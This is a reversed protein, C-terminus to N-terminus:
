RSSVTGTTQAVPSIFIPKILWTAAVTVALSILFVVLGWWDNTDRGTFMHNLNTLAGTTFVLFVHVIVFAVFFIMTPFHLKRAVETPFIKNLTANNKPWWTSMRLGTIIAVPAAIFVVTFYAVVQLANYHVWGDEAPWDLSAYQIGASVMNPFIDWDTPVIRVWHGTSFLLIVFIVGNLVWLIDLAQHTFQHITVKPGEEKFPSFLSKKKARWYAEPRQETRILLGTRVVLVMLFFNFFHAWNLWWPFGEPTDDPQTAHGDYTAIFDGVPDLTRLWRALLVVIAALVLIGALGLLRKTWPSLPKKKAPKPQEPKSQTAPQQTTTTATQTGTAQNVAVQPQSPTTVDPTQAQPAEVQPTDSETTTEPETPAAPETAKAPQAPVYRYKLPSWGSM